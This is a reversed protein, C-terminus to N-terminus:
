RAYSFKAVSALAILYLLEFAVRPGARCTGGCEPDVRLLRLEAVRPTMGESCNQWTLVLLSIFLGSVMFFLPIVWGNYNCTSM